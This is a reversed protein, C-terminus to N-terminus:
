WSSTYYFTGGEEKLLPEIMDVTEHLSGYYWEDYEYSGFFFGEKTPLVSQPNAKKDLVAKCEQVLAELQERNVYYEACNDEGHQVNSVFWSHIANAKRWYAVQEVIESVREPQIDPHPEGGLKVSVEHRESAEMFSWNKIYTKKLLYMDLGM